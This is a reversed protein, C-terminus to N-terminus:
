NYSLAPIFKRNLFFVCCSSEDAKSAADNDGHNELMEKHKNWRENVTEAVKLFPGSVNPDITENGIEKSLRVIHDM